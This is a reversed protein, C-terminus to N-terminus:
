HTEPNCFVAAYFKWNDEGLASYIAGPAHGIGPVITFAHPIGLKTLHADYDRNSSLTPDRDGVVQRIKTKAKLVGENKEAQTWPSLKNFYAIDGGFHDQFLGQHRAQFSNEDLLAGALISVTGFLDPYQFGLRAAGFGGMSFGEILRGERTALTRFNGDIHPILEKIFATEVPAKGDKSDCWMSDTLGNVFVVLAPPMKGARIAADFGQIIGPIGQQGGGIGHLWYIVPFRKGGATDYEEPTYILYSVETGAAKSPFSKYQLRPASVPPKMWQAPGGSQRRANGM